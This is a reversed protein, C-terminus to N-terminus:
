DNAKALLDLQDSAEASGLKKAKEYWARATAIDPSLARAGLKRLMIPDYTAGLAFAADTDCAEAARQFVLRAAAVVGNAIFEKGRRRLSALEGPPLQREAPRTAMCTSL